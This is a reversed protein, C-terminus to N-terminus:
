RRREEELRFDGLLKEMEEELTLRRPESQREQSDSHPSGGVDGSARLSGFFSRQPEPATPRDSRYGFSDEKQEPEVTPAPQEEPTPFQIDSPEESGSANGSEAESRDNEVTLFEELSPEDRPQPPEAREPVTSRNERGPHVALSGAAYPAPVSSPRAAGQDQNSSIAERDPRQPQPMEPPAKRNQIATAFSRVSLPRRARGDEPDLAAAPISADSVSSLNSAQAQNMSRRLMARERDEQATRRPEEPAVPEEAEINPAEQPSPPAPRRMENLHVPAKPAAEAEASRRALVTTVSDMTAVRQKVRDAIRRLVADDRRSIAEDEATTEPEPFPSPQSAAAEQGAPSVEPATMESAPALLESRPEVRVSNEAVSVEPASWGPRPRSAPARLINAELLLDNQGGILVLHEIEDRRLLVIRRKEDLRAVEMVAVRPARSKTAPGVPGGTLKRVLTITAVALLCVLLAVLLVWVIGGLSEGFIATLTQQM